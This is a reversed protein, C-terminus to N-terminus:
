VKRLVGIKPEYCRGEDMLDKISAEVSDADIGASIATEVVVAYPIGKGTDLKDIIGALVEKPEIQATAEEAAHEPATEQGAKIETVNQEIIEDIQEYTSREEAPQVYTSESSPPSSAAVDLQPEEPKVVQQKQFGSGSADHESLNVLADAQQAYTSIGSQLNLAAVSAKPEQRKEKEPTGTKVRESLVTEIARVLANKLESLLRDLNKYHGIARVAGDALAANTGKKLLYDKLENGSLGSSLADEMIRIRELTREATDLVWRDRLKEDAHNIEEPRISTYVSGDGPEYKRAKGVVSVYAPVNLESLFIAAEPQYQGAYVTFVGTPDAIRARWLNNEAGINEVETVVGVVFLRNCRVGTPTIIYNPAREDGESYYLNSRNFEFAFIRWAVERDIINEM